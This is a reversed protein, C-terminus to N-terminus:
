KWGSGSYTPFRKPAFATYPQWCEVYACGKAAGDDELDVPAPMYRWRNAYPKGNLFKVRRVTREGDFDVLVVWRLGFLRSGIARLLDIM